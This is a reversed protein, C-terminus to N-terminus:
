GSPAGHCVKRQERRAEHTAEGLGFPEDVPRLEGPPERGPHASALQPPGRRFVECLCLVVRRHQRDARLLDRTEVYQGVALDPALAIRIVERRRQASQVEVVGTLRQVAAPMGVRHRAHDARDAPRALDLDVVHEEQALVGVADDLDSHGARERHGLLRLVVVEV